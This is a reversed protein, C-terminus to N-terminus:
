ATTSLAPASMTRPTRPRPRTSRTPPRPPGAPRACPAAPFRRPPSPAPRPAWCRRAGAYGLVPADEEPAPAAAEFMMLRLTIRTGEGERSEVSLTGGMIEVLLKTITLGLGTGPVAEAAASSGRDFPQFIRELDAQPIGIGTDFVEIELTSGRYAARMGAEGEATFKVANALLNILVQRLRKRDAMVHRPLRGRREYSFGIGKAGAQLRFMGALQDLLEPLAIRDRALVLTGSEVRSIDQLGDILDTLHEASRRIVATATAQTEPAREMLQAYGFISNLPSRLEHSLGTLFRSKAFNAAEAAERAAQAAEDSARRRANEDSLARAQMEFEDEVARRGEANLVLFWAVLGALIALVAFVAWQGAHREDRRRHEPEPKRGRAVEARAPGPETRRHRGIQHMQGSGAQALRHQLAEQQHGAEDGEEVHDTEVQQRRLHAEALM